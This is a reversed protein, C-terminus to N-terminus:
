CWIDGHVAANSTYKTFVEFPMGGISKYKAILLGLFRNVSQAVIKAIVEYELFETLAIDLYTYKEVTNSIDPGCTFNFSTKPISPIRFHVDNSKVNNVHM